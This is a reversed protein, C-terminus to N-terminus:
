LKGSKRVKLTLRQSGLIEYNTVFDSDWVFNGRVPSYHSEETSSQLTTIVSSPLRSLEQGRVDSGTDSDLLVVYLRNRPFSRQIRRVLSAYDRIKTGGPNRQMDLIERMESNGVSLEYDGDPLTEPLVLSCTHKVLERRYPQLETHIEVVEGPRYVPKDTFASTVQAEPYRPFVKAQFEIHRPLVKKYPNTALIGVESGVALGATGGGFSDVFYDEKSITTGDDMGLSYRFLIAAEGGSRGACAISETLALMALTPGMNRDNWIRYSFDRRGRYEEDEVVVHASFMQAYSGFVGGVAPLRDQRIVGVQGLSEGLKFPRAVSKVISHIRAPAMPYSVIGYDFMPHGFAVLRDGDRYTVTGVGALALDGELLPVALGYGGSLERALSELSPFAGGPANEALRAYSAADGGSGAAVSYIPSSPFVTRLISLSLPSSFSAYLPAALPELVFSQPLSAAKQPDMEFEAATVELPAMAKTGMPSRFQLTQRIQWYREFVESSGALDSPDRLDSRTVEMVRLMSEIPTVGALPEKSYTWGYAVAGVLKNDVFVPSGSMGAVVGIDQLLPHSLRCLVMDDGPFARHRVGVVEVEFREPRVGQFVTLGYGKMGPRLDSVRIMRQPDFLTSVSTEAVSRAMSELQSGLGTPRASASTQNNWHVPVVAEAGLTQGLACLLISVLAGYAFERM